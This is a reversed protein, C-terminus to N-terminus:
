KNRQKRVGAYTQDYTVSKKYVGDASGTVVPSLIKTRWIEDIRSASVEFENAIEVNGYGALKMLMVAEHFPSLELRNIFSSLLLSDVDMEYGKDNAELGEDSLFLVLEEGKLQRKTEQKRSYWTRFVTCMCTLPNMGEPIGYRLVVEWSDHYRDEFDADSWNPNWYKKFLFRKTIDYDLEM